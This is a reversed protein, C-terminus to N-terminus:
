SQDRVPPTVGFCQEGHQEDIEVAELQDVVAEPV